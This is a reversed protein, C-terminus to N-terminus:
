KIISKVAFGGLGALAALGIALATGDIGKLLAIGLLIFIMIACSFALFKDNIKPM